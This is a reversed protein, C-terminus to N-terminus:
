YSKQFPVVLMLIIFFGVRFFQRTSSNTVWSLSYILTEEKKKKKKLIRKSSKKKKKKKNKTNQSKTNSFMKEMELRVDTLVPEKSEELEYEIGKKEFYIKDFINSMDLTFFMQIDKSKITKSLSDYSLFSGAIELEDSAYLQKHYKEREDLYLLFDTKNKKKYAFGDLLSELDYLNVALPYPEDADKELLLSLNSAIMGLQEVTVCIIYIKSISAKEIELVINGKSDFLQTKEQSNILSKLNNAQDFAKQIGRDSKFDRKIRIFAKDPDRFPEKQKSAKIEVILLFDNLKILLDHENQGKDNEYVSDYFTAENGLFKEFIKKTKNEAQSDRNNYFRQQISSSDFFEYLYQYISNLLQELFPCFLYEDSMKWLPAKEVPNPETYYKYDRQQREISFIEIIKKTNDEGFKTKLDNISLHHVLKIKSFFDEVADKVPHKQALERIDDKTKVQEYDISSLFKDREETAKKQLEYLEDFYNQFANTSFGYFDILTQVSFLHHKEFEENLPFFWDQIRELLQEKYYLPTTNFYHLFVPMSVDRAKRWNESLGAEMEEKTPFFLLSYTSTIKTIDRKIRRYNNPSFNRNNRQNTSLLLGAVYLLEKHPSALGIEKFSPKINFHKRMDNAILGLVSITNFDSLYNKLKDIEKNLNNLIKQDM